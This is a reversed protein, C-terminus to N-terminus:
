TDAEPPSVTYDIGADDLAARCRRVGDEASFSPGKFLHDAWKDPRYSNAERHTYLDVRGDSREFATVDVQFPRLWRPLGGPADGYYWVWTGKEVRDDPATKFGNLLPVEVERVGDTKLATEQPSLDVTATYEEPVSENEIAVDFPLYRYVIQQLIPAAVRRVINWVRTYRPHFLVSGFYVRAIVGVLVVAVAAAQTDIAEPLM